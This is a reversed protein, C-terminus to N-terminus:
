KTNCMVRGLTYRAFSRGILEVRLLPIWIVWLLTALGLRMM